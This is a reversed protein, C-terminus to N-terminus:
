WHSCKGMVLVNARPSGASSLGLSDAPEQWTVTSWVSPEAETPGGRQKADPHMSSLLLCALSERRVVRSCCGSPQRLYQTSLQRKPQMRIRSLASDSEVLGWQRATVREESWGFGTRQQQERALLEKEELNCNHLVTANGM